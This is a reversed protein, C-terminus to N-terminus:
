LIICYLPNFNFSSETIIYLQTLVEGGVAWGAILIGSGGRCVNVDSPVLYCPGSEGVLSDNLPSSCQYILMHHVFSHNNPTIFQHSIGVFLTCIIM